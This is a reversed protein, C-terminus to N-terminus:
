RDQREEDAEAPRRPTEAEEEQEPQTSPQAQRDGRTAVPERSSQGDREPPTGFERNQRVQRDREELDQEFGRRGETDRPERDDAESPQSDDETGLVERDVDGQERDPAGYRRQASPDDEERGALAPDEADEHAETTGNQAADQRGATREDTDTQRGAYIGAGDRDYLFVQPAEQGAQELHDQILPEAQQLQEQTVNLTVQEDNIATIARPAVAYVKEATEWFFRTEPAIVIYQVRGSALDVVLNDIQGLEEQQPGEIALDGLARTLLLRCELVETAEAEALSQQTPDDSRLRVNVDDLFRAALREEWDLGFFEYVERARAEECLAAIDSRDFSPAESWQSEEVRLRVIDRDRVIGESHGIEVLEVPVVKLEGGIGLVGGTSVVAYSVEGSELDVALSDITGIREGDQSEVRLGELESSEFTSGQRPREALEDSEDTADARQGVREGPRENAHGPATGPRGMRQGTREGPQEEPQALAGSQGSEQPDQGEQQTPQPAVSQAQATPLGWSLSLSLLAAASATLVTSRIKM